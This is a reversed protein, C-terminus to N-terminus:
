LELPIVLETTPDSVTMMYSAPPMAPFAFEGLQDATTTALVTADLLLRIQLADDLSDDKRFIQGSLELQQDAARTLINVAIDAQDTSFVLQRRQGDSVGRAGSLAPQQASDFSLLASIRRLLGPQRRTTAFREILSARLAPPPSELMLADSAKQFSRIWALTALSAQDANHLQEQIIAADEGSLRGEVWDLLNAFTLAPHDAM